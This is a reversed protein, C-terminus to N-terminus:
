ACKIRLYVGHNCRRFAMIIGGCLSSTPDLQLVKGTNLVRSPQWSGTPHQLMRLSLIRPLQQQVNGM